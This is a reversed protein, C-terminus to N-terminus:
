RFDSGTIGSIPAVGNSKGMAPRGAEDWSRASNIYTDIRNVVLQFTVAGTVWHFGGANIWDVLLGVDAAQLGPIGKLKRGLHGFSQSNVVGCAVTTDRSIAEYLSQPSFALKPGDPKAKAAAPAALMAAIAGILAGAKGEGWDATEYAKLGIDTLQKARANM